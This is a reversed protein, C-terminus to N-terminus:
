TRSRPWRVCRPGVTWGGARPWGTGVREFHGTFLYELSASWSCLDRGPNAANDIHRFEDFFFADTGV